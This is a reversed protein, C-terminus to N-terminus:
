YQRIVFNNISQYLESLIIVTLNKGLSEELNIVRSIIGNIINENEESLFEEMFHKDTYSVDDINVGLENEIMNKVDSEFSVLNHLVHNHTDQKELNNLSNFFENIIFYLVKSMGNYSTPRCYDNIAKITEYADYKNTKKIVFKAMDMYKKHSKADWNHVGDNDIEHYWDCDNDVHYDDICQNKHLESAVKKEQTNFQEISVYYKRMLKEANIKDMSNGVENITSGINSINHNSQNSTSM